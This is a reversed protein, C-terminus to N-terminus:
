TRIGWLIQVEGGLVGVARMLLRKDIRGGRWRYRAFYGHGGVENDLDLLSWNQQCARWLIQDLLENGTPKYTRRRRYGDTRARHCIASWSRGPLAKLLESKTARPYLRHLRTIENETWPPSRKGAVGIRVAKSYHASLTRAVNRATVARYDPHGHVLNHVEVRDWLLHGSPTVGTLFMRRRANESAIAGRAFRSFRM